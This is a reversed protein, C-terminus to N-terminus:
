RRGFGREVTPESMEDLAPSRIEAEHRYSTPIFTLFIRGMFCGTVLM